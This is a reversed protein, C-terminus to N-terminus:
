AWAPWIRNRKSKEVKSHWKYRGKTKYRSFFSIVPLALFPLFKPSPEREIADRQSDDIPLLDM